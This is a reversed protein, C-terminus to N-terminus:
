KVTEQSPKPNIYTNIYINRLHVVNDYLRQTRYNWLYIVEDHGELKKNWKFRGNQFHCAIKMYEM